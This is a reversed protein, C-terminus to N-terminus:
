SGTLWVVFLSLLLFATFTLNYRKWSNTEERNKCFYFYFVLPANRPKRVAVKSATVLIKTSRLLSKLRKYTYQFLFLLSPCFLSPQVLHELSLNPLYVKFFEPSEQSLSVKRRNKAMKQKWLQKSKRDSFSQRFPLAVM